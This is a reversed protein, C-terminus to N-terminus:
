SETEVLQSVASFPINKRVIDAFNVRAEARAAWSAAWAAAWGAARSAARAAERSAAWSAAACAAECAAWSAAWVASSAAAEAACVAANAAARAAYAAWSAARAAEDVAITNEENPNALWAEAAEIALRPRDEGEPVLHLVTRAIDCAIRVFVPKEVGAKEALWLMWSPRDCTNWAMEADPQTLLWKIAESCPTIHPKLVVTM